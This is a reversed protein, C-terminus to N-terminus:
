ARVVKEIYPPARAGGVQRSRGNAVVEHAAQLLYVAREQSKLKRGFIGFPFFIFSFAYVVQMTKRKRKNKKKKLLFQAQLVFWKTVGVLLDGEM